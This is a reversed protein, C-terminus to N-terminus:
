KRKKEKREIDAIKERRLKAREAISEETKPESM